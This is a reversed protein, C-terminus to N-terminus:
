DHLDAVQSTESSEVSSISIQGHPPDGVPYSVDLREPIARMHTRIPSLELNDTTFIEDYDRFAEKLAQRAIPEDLWPFRPTVIGDMPIESYTDLPSSIVIANMLRHITHIMECREIVPRFRFNCSHEYCIPDPPNQRDIDRACNDRIKRLTAVAEAWAGACGLELRRTPVLQSNVSIPQSAM